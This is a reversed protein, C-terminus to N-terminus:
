AETSGGQTYPDWVCTCYELTPRNLAQYAKTKISTQRTRVNRKVFRLTKNAKARINDIHTNWKLDSTITIESYKASKLNKLAQGHLMYNTVIPPSKNTVTLVECKSANFEMLWTMEWNSLKDLDEELTQCDSPDSITHYVIADDAFLRM